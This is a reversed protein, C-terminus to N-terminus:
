ETPLKHSRLVVLKLAAELSTGYGITEDETDAARYSPLLGPISTVTGVSSSEDDIYGDVAVNWKGDERLAVDYGWYDGGYAIEFYLLGTGNSRPGDWTLETPEPNETDKLTKYEIYDADGDLLSPLYTMILNSADFEFLRVRNNPYQITLDEFAREADDKAWFLGDWGSGLPAERRISYVTPM